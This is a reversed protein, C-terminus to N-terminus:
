VPAISRAGLDLVGTLATAGQPITYKTSFIGRFNHRVKGTDSFVNEGIDAAVPTPTDINIGVRRSKPYGDIDPPAETPPGVQVTPYGPIAGQIVQPSTFVVPTNSTGFECLNPGTFTGNIIAKLCEIDITVSTAVPM